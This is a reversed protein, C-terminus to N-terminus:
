ENWLQDQLGSYRQVSKNIGGELIENRGWITVGKRARTIATYLLEKTLVPSSDSPLILHIHDFESGQSKHVTLAYANEFHTLRAPNFTRFTDKEGEFYISSTERDGDQYSWAIGLDGNRLKLTYNNRTVLVPRGSFWPRYRSLSLEKRLFQEIRRNINASGLYGRRHVCLTMQKKLLEYAESHGASQTLKKAHQLLERLLKDEIDTSGIVEEFHVDRYESSHLIELASEAEGRNIAKALQGIGSKSGFRYSKELFTLNDLLPKRNERIFEPPLAIGLEQLKRVAAESYRNKEPRCIDGLVSGAEVSALQDKDGLLILRTDPLLAALLKSMMTQDIMSAEDVVVVEYPLPNKDSYRFEGSGRRVGLLQHLTAAQEPIAQRIDDDAPLDSKQQRLSEKLRAAAKGTPAALAVSLREGRDAAQEILLALIRVVTTTKGTGPGGSIVSFRHTVSLAAAVQQWNLEFLDDSPFYRSLGEKLLRDNIDDVNRVAKLLLDDAIQREYQWRKHLYLRGSGDLILPHFSGPEGTVPTDSLSDLWEGLPPATVAPLSLDPTAEREFVKKGALEKLLLCINGQRYWYSALVAALMVDDSLPQGDTDLARAFELDIEHLIGADVYVDLKRLLEQSSM